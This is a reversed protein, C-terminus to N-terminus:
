FPEEDAYPNAPRQTRQAQQRSQQQGDRENKMVQATAWKLDPGINEVILSMKSRKDGQDTEWRELRMHGTVLVRTSKTLSEAINEALKDFAKCDIWTADQEQWEGNVKKAERAAVSFNVVTTGSPTYRLDPDAGLSGVVTAPFDKSM